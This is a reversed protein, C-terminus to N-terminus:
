NRASVDKHTGQPLLWSTYYRAVETAM